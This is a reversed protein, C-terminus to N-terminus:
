SSHWRNPTPFSSSAREEAALLYVLISDHRGVASGPLIVPNWRRPGNM